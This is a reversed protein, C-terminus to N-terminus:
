FGANNVLISLPGLGTEAAAIASAVSEAKTVDCEIPLCAEGRAEIDRALEPPPDARSEALGGKAGAGALVEAFHRGIGSSAGTVLAVEGTIDFSPLEPM